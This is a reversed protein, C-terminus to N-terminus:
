SRRAKKAAGPDERYISCERRSMPKLSLGRMPCYFLYCDRGFIDIQIVTKRFSCYACTHRPEKIKKEAEPNQM